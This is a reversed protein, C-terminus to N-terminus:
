KRIYVRVSDKEAPQGNDIITLTMEDTGQWRLRATSSSGEATESLVDGQLKWRCAISAGPNQPLRYACSGDDRAQWIVETPKGALPLVTHWTGVITRAQDTAPTRSEAADGPSCAALLMLLISLGANKTMPM